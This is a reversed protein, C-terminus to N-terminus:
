LRVAPRSTFVVIREHLRRLHLRAHVGAGKNDCCRHFDAAGWGDRSARYCLGLRKKRGGGELLRVLADHNGADLIRSVGVQLSVPSGHVEQGMVLVQLTVRADEPLTDDFDRITCTIVFTRGGDVSTVSTVRGDDDVLVSPRRSLPTVTSSPRRVDILCGTYFCCQRQKFVASQACSNILLM